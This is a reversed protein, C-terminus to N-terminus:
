VAGNTVLATHDGSEILHLRVSPQRAIGELHRTSNRWAAVPLSM